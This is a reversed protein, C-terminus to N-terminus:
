NELSNPTTESRMVGRPKYGASDLWSLALEFADIYSHACGVVKYGKLNLSFDLSSAAEFAAGHSVVRLVRWKGSFYAVTLFDTNGGMLEFCRSNPKIHYFKM